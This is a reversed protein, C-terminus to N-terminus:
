KNQSTFSEALKEFLKRQEKNLKQPTVLRLRVLQNGRGNSRLYPIGKGKLQFTKGTQSGAPIKIKEKGYLTPIEVETGLAAQAFDIPLEYLVDNGERYFLKHSIVKIAAYLDGSPGGKEGINGQGSLRIENNDDIGAPIEITISQKKKERGTGRCKNCPNTIVEGEGLCHSCATVNTFRGFLSQQVHSIQGSGNCTPCKSPQSGPKSGSGHCEACREIRNIKVDKECGLAAEEFTITIEYHLDSGRRQRQRANGAVGSFFDYFDEFISGVGNFGFGEFGRSSFGDIGAHGFRDYASRKDPDCLVQYAENLEKFRAEAGDDRNHDPHCQFALKRFAKKIEANSAKRDIGLVQYYDRKAAM